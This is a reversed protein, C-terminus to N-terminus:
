RAPHFGLVYGESEEYDFGETWEIENARALYIEDAEPQM